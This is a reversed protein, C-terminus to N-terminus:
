IRIVYPTPRQFCARAVRLILVSSVVLTATCYICTHIYVNSLFCLSLISYLLISLSTTKKSQYAKNDDLCRFGENFIASVDAEESLLDGYPSNRLAYHLPNLAGSTQDGAMVGGVYPLQNMVAPNTVVVKGRWLKDLTFVSSNYADYQGTHFTPHGESTAASDRLLAPVTVLGGLCISILRTLM